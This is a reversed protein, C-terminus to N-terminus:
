FNDIEVNDVQYVAGLSQGWTPFIMIVNIDSIDLGADFLSQLTFHYRQWEGVVPQQDYNGSALPLEVATAAGSSEFKVLWQADAGEPPSVVRLDFSIAGNALLNSADFSVGENALFGLVTEPSNNIEFQAVNGYPAEAEVISPTSGACCDWLTWDANIDDAFIS